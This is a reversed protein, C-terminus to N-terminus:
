GDTFRHNYSVAFNSNKFQFVGVKLYKAYLKKEEICNQCCSLPQKSLDKDDKQVEKCGNLWIYNSLLFSSFTLALTIILIADLKHRKLWASVLFILQQIVGDSRMQM